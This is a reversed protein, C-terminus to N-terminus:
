CAGADKQQGRGDEQAGAGQQVGRHASAAASGFGEGGATVCGCGFGRM